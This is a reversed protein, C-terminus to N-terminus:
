LRENLRRLTHEIDPPYSVGYVIKKSACRAFMTRLDPSYAVADPHSSYLELFYEFLKKERQIQLNIVLTM